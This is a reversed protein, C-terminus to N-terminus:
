LNKRFYELWEETLLEQRKSTISVIRGMGECKSCENREPVYNHASTVTMYSEAGGCKPCIEIERVISVRFLSHGQMVERIAQRLPAAGGESVSNLLDIILGLEGGSINLVYRGDIEKCTPHPPINKTVQNM